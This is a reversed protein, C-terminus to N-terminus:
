GFQERSYPLSISIDIPGDSPITRRGAIGNEGRRVSEKQALNGNEVLMGDDDDDDVDVDVIFDFKNNM